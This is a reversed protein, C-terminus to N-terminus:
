HDSAAGGVPEFRLAKEFGEKCMAQFEQGDMPEGDLEAQEAMSVYDGKIELCRKLLSADRCMAKAWVIPLGYGSAPTPEYEAIPRFGRHPDRYAVHFLIKNAAAAWISMTPGDDEKPAPAAIKQPLLDKPTPMKTFNKKWSAASRKLDAIHVHKLVEYFTKIKPDTCQRDFAACLEEMVARFEAFDESRM